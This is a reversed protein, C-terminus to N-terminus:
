RRMRLFHNSYLHVSLGGSHGLSLLFEGLAPFEPMSDWDEMVVLSRFVLVRSTIRGTVQNHTTFGPQGPNLLNYTPSIALKIQVEKEFHCCM